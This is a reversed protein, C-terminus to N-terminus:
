EFLSQGKRYISHHELRTITADCYRQEREIGVVPINFSQAAILTTGSGMFPDLISDVKVGKKLAQEICWRMVDVPKQTPHYREDQLRNIRDEVKFGSWSYRIMRVAGPLDTYAMEADAFDCNGNKKDWLLWCSTPELGEFYNGGFIICHKVKSRCLRLLDADVPQDDWDDHGYNRPKKSAGRSAHNRKSEGIGYPPDTLLLSFQGLEPLVTASDGHYITINDKQYYPTTM